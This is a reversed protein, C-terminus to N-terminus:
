ARDVTQTAPVPDVSVSQPPVPLPEFGAVRALYRDFFETTLQAYKEPHLVVAQNHKAGPAAWFFKPQPAVAYLLRGQEIPLYSDREGHVFAIPRPAMRMLALRVSPLKCGFDRQAFRMMVWRLVRWFAPHHNEYVVRVSAFIYAWRKMFYEVCNDTSYAGDCVLARIDRNEAALLISACAGRSVGMLGIEVPYGRRRLWDEVHAIAGRLDYVERESIWQRPTYGQDCDSQGHGRFDFTFIDYGADRLPRCYRACSYMDSCYEHAFVIMGRRPVDAAARIMMGSLRLGDFATFTIPEGLLREFDLPNRGLPLERTSRMINLAIPVYRLFVYTPILVLLAITFVIAVLAWNRALFEFVAALIM